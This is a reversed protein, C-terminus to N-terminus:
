NLGFRRQWFVRAGTTAPAEKTSISALSTNRRIHQAPPDVRLDIAHMEISAPTAGLLSSPIRHVSVILGLSTIHRLLTLTTGEFQCSEERTM